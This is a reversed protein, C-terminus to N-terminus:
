SGACCAGGGGGLITDVINKYRNKNDFHKFILSLYCSLANFVVRSSGLGRGFTLETGREYYAHPCKSKQSGGLHFGPDLGRIRLQMHHVM